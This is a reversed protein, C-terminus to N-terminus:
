RAARRRFLPLLLPRWAATIAAGMLLGTLARAELATPAWALRDAVVGALILLASLLVPVPRLLQKIMGTGAPLLMLCLGANLVHFLIFGPLVLSPGTIALGAGCLLAVLAATLTAGPRGQANLAAGALAALAYAPLALFMMRANASVINMGAITMEGRLFILRAIPDGQVLGVVLTAGTVVLLAAAARDFASNDTDGRRYADSFLTLAVTVVPAILIGAPLEFLKAAYNFAALQGAGQVSILTRFLVPSLIAIGTATAGLAFRGALGPAVPQGEGAPFTARRVALRLALLRIALAAVIGVALAGFAGPGSFLLLLVIILVANYYLTGLGAAAFRGGANLWAALVGTVAAIPLGLAILRVYPALPEWSELAMGPAFVAIVLQPRLAVAAAIAGFGLAAAVLARDRLREREEAPATRFAPVLAASFGGALLLGVLFDPLTLLIVALDAEVSVGAKAALVAERLFGAVRGILIVLSLALSARLLGTM